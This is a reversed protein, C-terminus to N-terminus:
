RRRRPNRKILGRFMEGLANQAPRNVYGWGYAVINGLTECFLEEANTEGYDTAYPKRHGISYGYEEWIDERQLFGDDWSQYDIELVDKPFSYTLYSDRNRYTCEVFYRDIMERTFRDRYGLAEDYLISLVSEYFAHILEVVEEYTYSDQLRNTDKAFEILTFVSFKFQEESEAYDRWQKRQDKDFVEQYWYHGIEHTMTQVIRSYREQVFPAEGGEDLNNLKLTITQVKPIGNPFVFDSTHTYFATVTNRSSRRDNEFHETEKNAPINIVIDKQYKWLVPVYRLLNEKYMRLCKFVFQLRDYLWPVQQFVNSGLINIPMGTIDILKYTYMPAFQNNYENLCLLKYWLSYVDCLLILAKIVYNEFDDISLDQLNTAKKKKKLRTEDNTFWILDISNRHIVDDIRMFDKIFTKYPTTDHTRNVDAQRFKYSLTEFRNAFMLGVINVASEYLKMSEVNSRNQQIAAKIYNMFDTFPEINSEDFVTYMFSEINEQLIQTERQLTAKNRRRM